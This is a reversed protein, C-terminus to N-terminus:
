VNVLRVVRTSSEGGGGGGVCVCQDPIDPVFLKWEFNLTDCPGPVRTFLHYGM